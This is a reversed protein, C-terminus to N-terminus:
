IVACGDRGGEREERGKTEKGTTMRPYFFFYVCSVYVGNRGSRIKGKTINDNNDAVRSVTRGSLGKPRHVVVDRARLTQGQSAREVEDVLTDLGQPLIGLVLM